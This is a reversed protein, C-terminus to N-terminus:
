EDPQVLQIHFLKPWRKGTIFIRKEVADYAIGNLVDINPHKDEPLLIDSLDVIGEVEGTLPNIIYIESAPWVNAFIKGEIFELENLQGKIPKGNITATLRSTETFTYPDLYRLVATGDSMILREGDTTIGWGETPYAFTEILTFSLLDYEFGIKSKWTIQVIRDQFITIGEGFYNEDLQHIELIKGTTLEVKRLSSEGHLGTGEYLFGDHYVLGQTFANSDHPYVNLIQYHYRTPKKPPPAKAFIPVALILGLLPWTFLHMLKMNGEQISLKDFCFKKSLASFKLRKKPIGFL